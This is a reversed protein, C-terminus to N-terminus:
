RNEKTPDLQLIQGIKLTLNSLLSLPLKRRALCYGGTSVSIKHRTAFSQIVFDNVAKSCSRDENLAQAIFMSLTTLPTYIRERHKPTHEEFISELDKNSLLDVFSSANLGSAIQNFKTKKTNSFQSTM